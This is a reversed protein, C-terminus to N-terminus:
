RTYIYMADINNVLSSSSSPVVNRLAPGAESPMADSSAARRLQNFVGEFGAAASFYDVSDITGRPLSRNRSEQASYNDLTTPMIM